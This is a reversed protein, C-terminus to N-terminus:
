PHTAHPFVSAGGSDEGAPADLRHALDVDYARQALTFALRFPEQVLMTMFQLFGGGITNVDSFTALIARAHKAGDGHYRIQHDRIIEIASDILSEMFGRDHLEVMHKALLKPLGVWLDRSTKLLHDYQFDACITIYDAVLCGINEDMCLIPRETHQVHKHNQLLHSIKTTFLKRLASGLQVKFRGTASRSLDVLTPLYLQGLQARAREFDFEPLARRVDTLVDYEHLVRELAGIPVDDLDDSM